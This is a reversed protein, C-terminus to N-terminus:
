KRELIQEYVTIIREIVSDWSLKEEVFKRANKSMETRLADNNILLKIKESLQEVNAPEVLFGNYGDKIVDPMGSVNTAIVPLGCSMAELIVLPLAERLSPLVFISSSSYCDVLEQISINSKFIIRETINLKKSLSILYDKEPGSGVIIVKINDINSIAELLYSIGKRKILSGVSIVIRNSSNHGNIFLNTDVGNPIVTINDQDIHINKLRDKSKDHVVIIHDVKRVITDQFLKYAIRYIYYNPQINSPPDDHLTFVIPINRDKQRMFISLLFPAVRGHVHIIDYHNNKMLEMSKKFAYFGGIAHRLMYGNFGKDFISLKPSNIPCIGVNGNLDPTGVIDSVLDIKIGHESLCKSLYYVHNETGTNSPIPFVGTNIMLIRM